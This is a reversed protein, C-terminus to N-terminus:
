INIHYLITRNEYRAVKFEVNLPSDTRAIRLINVITLPVIRPSEQIPSLVLQFVTTIINLGICYSNEIPTFGTKLISSM